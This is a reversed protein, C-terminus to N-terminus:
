VCAWCCLPQGRPGVEPSEDERSGESKDDDDDDDSYELDELTAGALVDAVAVM